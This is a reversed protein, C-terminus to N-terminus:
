NGSEPDGRRPEHDVTEQLWRFYSRPGTTEFPDGFDAAAAGLAKYQNRAHSSIPAGNDFYDFGCKTRSTVDHGAATLLQAYRKYVAAADGFSDDWPQPSYRSPASTHAPEFGSFHFFRAPAGNVRIGDRSVRVHREPLNWYAVNCGQDRMVFVDEFLIPMLDLWRQDYYVGRAVEASCDALLRDQWWALADRAAPLNSVGVFGANFTGSQLINLERAIRAEGELPSLLHPTLVVAHRTVEKFVPTLDGVVLIDPDLFIAGSMGRDLLHQLLFPKLLVALEQRSCRFCARRLDPIGLNDLAIVEFPEGALRWDTDPEDAVVAMFPVHPHHERLSQALVRAFSLYNRAVITAVAVRPTVNERPM